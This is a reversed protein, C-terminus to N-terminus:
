YGLGVQLPQRHGWLNGPALSWWEWLCYACYSAWNMLDAKHIEAKLSAYFDLCSFYNNKKWSLKSKSLGKYLHPFSKIGSKDAWVMRVHILREWPPARASLLTSQFIFFMQWKDYWNHWMWAKLRNLQNQTM